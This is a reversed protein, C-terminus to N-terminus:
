LVEGAVEAEVGSAKDDASDVLDEGRAADETFVSRHLVVGGDVERVHDDEAGLVDSLRDAEAGRNRFVVQLALSALLVKHWLMLDIRSDELVDLLTSSTDQLCTISIMDRRVLVPTGNTM